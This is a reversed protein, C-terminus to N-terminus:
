AYIQTNKYVDNVHIDELRVDCYSKIVEMLESKYKSGSVYKNIVSEVDDFINNLLDVISKDTKIGKENKYKEILQLPNQVKDQLLDIESPEPMVIGVIDSIFKIETFFEDQL